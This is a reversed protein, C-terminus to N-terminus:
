ELHKPRAKRNVLPLAVLALLGIFIMFITTAGHLVLALMQGEPRAMGLVVVTEVVFFHYTGIGGQVPIIMGVSGMALVLFAGMAGLERAPEYGLFVSYTMFFYCAYIGISYGLFLVPKRVNRVSLLGQFFRSILERLRVAIRSRFIKRRYVLIIASMVLIAASIITWFEWSTILGSDFGMKIRTNEIFGSVVGLQALLVILFLLILLIVDVARESIVTGLQETFPVKEYKTLVGCRSVEGLRPFVYNALYMILIALFSNIRSPTYGLPMIMMRWRLARIIHSFISFVYSILIWEIKFQRIGEWIGAPDQGKYVFYFITVGIALFLVYKVINSLRKRNM